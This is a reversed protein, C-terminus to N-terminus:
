SFIYILFVIIVIVILWTMTSASSKSNKKQLENHIKRWKKSEAKCYEIEEPSLKEFNKVIYSDIEIFKKLAKYEESNFYDDSKMKIDDGKM